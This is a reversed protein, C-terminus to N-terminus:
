HRVMKSNRSLTLLSTRLALNKGVSTGSSKMHRSLPIHHEDRWPQRM